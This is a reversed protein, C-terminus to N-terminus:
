IYMALCNLLKSRQIVDDFVDIDTTLTGVERVKDSTKFQQKRKIKSTPCMNCTKYGNTDM